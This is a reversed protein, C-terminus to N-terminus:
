VHCSRRFIRDGIPILTPPGCVTVEAGMKILGTEKMFVATDMVFEMDEISLQEIGLLDKHKFM